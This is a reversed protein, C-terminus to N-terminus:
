EGGGVDRQVIRNFYDSLSQGSVAIKARVADDLDPHIYVTLRKYNQRDTTPRGPRRKQIATQADTVM